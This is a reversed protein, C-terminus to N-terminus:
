GLVGKLFSFNTFYKTSYKVYLFCYITTYNIIIAPVTLFTQLLHNLSTTSLLLSLSVLCSKSIISINIVKILTTITVVLTHM